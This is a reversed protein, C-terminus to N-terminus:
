VGGCYLVTEDDWVVAVLGRYNCGGGDKIGLHFRVTYLSKFCAATIQINTDEWFEDLYLGKLPSSHPHLGM